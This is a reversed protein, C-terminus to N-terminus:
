KDQSLPQQSPLRSEGTMVQSCYVTNSYHSNILVAVKADSNKKDGPFLFAEDTLRLVAYLPLSDIGTKLVQL